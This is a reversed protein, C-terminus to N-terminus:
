DNKSTRNSRKKLQELVETNDPSRQSTPRKKGGINERSHDNQKEETIMALDKCQFVENNVILKNYRLYARCGKKRAEKMHPILLKREELIEKSYDEDLWIDTGKLVKSKSLIETRKNGTNLKLIIPRVRNATYKGIRNVEDIHEKNIEIGMEKIITIVANFTEERNEEERDKVGKIVINKRRIERELTAMKDGQQTMQEKLKKNEEKIKINESILHELKDDMVQLKESIQAFMNALKDMETNNVSM